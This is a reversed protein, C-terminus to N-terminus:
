VSQINSIENAIYSSMMCMTYSMGALSHTMVGVNEIIYCVKYTPCSVWEIYFIM